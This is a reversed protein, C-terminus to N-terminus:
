EVRRAAKRLCKKCPRSEVYSRDGLIPPSRHMEREIDLGCLLTKGGDVTLHHVADESEPDVIVKQIESM